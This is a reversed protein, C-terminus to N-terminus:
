WQLWSSALTHWPPSFKGLKSTDLSVGAPARCTSDQVHVITFVTVTTSISATNGAKDTGTLTYLYCYGRTIGGPQTTGTVTTPSTFPGGSGPAGCTTGTLTESQVTLTSSALGSGSDTYDTRSNIAFSTSTSTSTSGGSTAAVSNVTVAGGSPAATDIKLASTAHTTETNGANDVSWYSITQASGDPITVAHGPYVTTTGGDIEYYTTAVGSGRHGRPSLQRVLHLTPSTGKYWSNSGNPSAPSLTITTVPAVTDIKLASTTHTTETNGANDVSWYSITQASGDPITVAHGPYVTATGGDIEYYTTAM